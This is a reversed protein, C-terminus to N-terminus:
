ERSLPFGSQSRAYSSKRKRQFSPRYNPHIPLHHRRQHVVDYRWRRQRSFLVREDWQGMNKTFALPMGNLSQTAQHIDNAALLSGCVLAAGLWSTSKILRFM